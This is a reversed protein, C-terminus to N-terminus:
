WRTQVPYQLFLPDPSLIVLNQVIAQCILMRDFPDRHVHPLNAVHLAAEESLPLLDIGHRAREAPVLLHPPQRMALRGLAYKAAIEWASVVSLLFHNGPDALIRIAEASLRKSSAIFWLFTATDLLVNM